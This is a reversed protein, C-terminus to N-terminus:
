RAIDRVTCWTCGVATFVCEVLQNCVLCLFDKFDSQLPIVVSRTLDVSLRGM